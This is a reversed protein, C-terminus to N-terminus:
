EMGDRWPNYEVENWEMGGPNYEVENWEMGGHTICAIGHLAHM